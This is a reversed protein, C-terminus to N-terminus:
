LDLLENMVHPYLPTMGKASSNMMSTRLVDFPSSVATTILGSIMAACFHLGLGEKLKLDRQLAVKSADYSAIQLGGFFLSNESLAVSVRMCMCGFACVQSATIAGGRLVNAVLGVGLGSVGTGVFRM